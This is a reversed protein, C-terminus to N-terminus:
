AGDGPEPKAASRRRRRRKPKQVAAPEPAADADQRPKKAKKPRRRKVPEAAPRAFPLEALIAFPTDAPPPPPAADPKTKLSRSRGGWLETEADGALRVRKYGLAKLILRLEENSVGLLNTMAANPAFAHKLAPDRAERISDALRELMDFRIARPGCRQFGAAAYDGESRGPEVPLSTLGPPALLARSPDGAHAAKLLASLRAAKPKLLAPMFVAHEGIRVGAAKLQRRENTSLEALDAGLASRPAAGYGEILRYAVGRALGDLGRGANVRARLQLLPGLAAEAEAALFAELRREARAVAE